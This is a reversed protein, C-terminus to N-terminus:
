ARALQRHQHHRNAALVVIVVNGAAAVGSAISPAWQHQGLYYAAWLGLSIFGLSWSAVSVGEVEHSVILKRIQPWRNVVMLIGAGYCGGNWGFVMTSLGCALFVIGATELFVRRQGRRELRAVVVAQIPFIGLSSWFVIPNWIVAGYWIWFVTSYLFTLWTALAIGETSIKWARRLQVLTLAWGLATAVLGILFFFDHRSV